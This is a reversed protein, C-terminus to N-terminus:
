SGYSVEYPNNESGDGDLIYGNGNIDTVYRNNHSKSYSDVYIGLKASAVYAGNNKEDNLWFQQERLWSSSTKASAEDILNTTFSRLYDDVTLLSGNSKAADYDSEDKINTILRLKDNFIGVIRYTEGKYKIYNNVNVGYYRVNKNEDEYVNSSSAIIDYLSKRDEKKIEFTYYIPEESKSTIKINYTQHDNETGYNTLSGLEIDENTLKKIDGNNIQYYVDKHKKKSDSEKEELHLIVNADKKSRNVISIDTGDTDNTNLESDSSVIKFNEDKNQNLFTEQNTGSEKAYSFGLLLASLCLASFLIVYYKNKM